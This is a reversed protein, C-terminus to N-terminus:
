FGFTGPEEGIRHSAKFDMLRAADEMDEAEGEDVMAQLAELQMESLTGSLYAGVWTWAQESM